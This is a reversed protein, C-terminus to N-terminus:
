NRATRGIERFLEDMEIMGKVKEKVAPEFVAIVKEVQDSSLGLTSKQTWIRFLSTTIVDDEIKTVLPNEFIALKYDSDTFYRQLDLTTAAAVERRLDERRQRKLEPDNAADHDEITKRFSESIM